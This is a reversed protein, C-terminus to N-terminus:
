ARTQGDNDTESRIAAIVAGWRDMAVGEADSAIGARRGAEAVLQRDSWGHIVDEGSAVIDRIEEEIRGDTSAM